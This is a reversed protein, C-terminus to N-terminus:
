DLGRFSQYDLMVGEGGGMSSRQVWTCSKVNEKDCEKQNPKAWQPIKLNWPWWGAFLKEM